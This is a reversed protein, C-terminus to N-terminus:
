YKTSPVQYKTGAVVSGVNRCLSLLMVILKAGKLAPHFERGATFGAFGEPNIRHSEPASPLLGSPLLLAHRKAREMRSQLISHDFMRHLSRNAKGSSEVRV